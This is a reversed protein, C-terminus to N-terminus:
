LLRCYGEIMSDLSFKEQATKKGAASLRSRVAPDKIHLIAEKLSKESDAKVIIADVENSLYGAIGCQETVIVPTGCAMAEAAVLGFPDNDRSPLVLVDTSRYFAA